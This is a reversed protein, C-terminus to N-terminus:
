TVYLTIILFLSFFYVFSYVLSFLSVFIFFVCLVGSITQFIILVNLIIIIAIFISISFLYCGFAYWSVGYLNGLFHIPKASPWFVDTVSKVAEAGM